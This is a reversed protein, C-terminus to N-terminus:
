WHWFSFQYLFVTLFGKQSILM